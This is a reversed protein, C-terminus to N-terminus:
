SMKALRNVLLAAVPLMGFLVYYPKWNSVPYNFQSMDGVFIFLFSLAPMVVFSFLFFQAPSISVGATPLSMGVVFVLFIGLVGLIGTTVTAGM